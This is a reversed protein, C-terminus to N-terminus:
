VRNTSDGGSKTTKKMCSSRFLKSNTSNRRCLQKFRSWGGWRNPCHPFQSNRQVEWSRHPEQPLASQERGNGGVVVEGVVKGTAVVEAKAKSRADVKSGEAKGGGM